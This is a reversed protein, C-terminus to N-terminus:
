FDSANIGIGFPVDSIDIISTAVFKIHPNVKKGAKMHSRILALQKDRDKAFRIPESEGIAFVDQREVRMLTIGFKHSPDVNFQKTPPAPGDKFNGRINRVIAVHIGKEGVYLDGNKTLWGRAFRPIKKMEDKTPNKWTGQTKGLKASFEEEWISFDRFSPFSSAKQKLNFKIHPVNKKASKAFAKKLVAGVESEGAVFLNTDEIRQVTVLNRPLPSFSGERKDVDEPWLIAVKDILNLHLSKGGKNTSAVYLNGSRSVIARAFPPIKKMEAKSPNKYVGLDGSTQFDEMLKCFLSFRLM